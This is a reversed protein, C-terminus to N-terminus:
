KKNNTLYLEKLRKIEDTTLKIKEMLYNNINNFDSEIKDFVSKIYIEKTAMIGSLFETIKKGAFFRKCRRYFIEKKIDCFTKSIMYDNIITEKDFDLSSMLLMGAIGTRDKGETCNFLIAGDPNSLLIDFFGRYVGASYDSFAMNMYMNTLFTDAPVGKIIITKFMKLFQKLNRPVGLNEDELVPLHVININDVKPIPKKKLEVDTRFDIITKVNYDNLFGLLDKKDIKSLEASRIFKHEVLLDGEKNVYGGIDRANRFGKIDIIEM